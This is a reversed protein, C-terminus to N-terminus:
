MVKRKRERDAINYTPLFGTNLGLDQRLRRPCKFLGSLSYGIALSPVTTCGESGPAADQMPCRPTCLARTHCQVVQMRLEHLSVLLSLLRSVHIDVPLRMTPGDHLGSEVM